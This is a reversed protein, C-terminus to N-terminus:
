VVVGGYAKMGFLSVVKDTGKNVSTYHYLTSLLYQNRNNVYL